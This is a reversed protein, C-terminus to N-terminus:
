DSNQQSKDAEKRLISKEATAYDILNDSVMTGQPRTVKCNRWVISLHKKDPVGFPFVDRYFCKLTLQYEFDNNHHNRMWWQLYTLYMIGQGVNGEVLFLIFYILKDEMKYDFCFNLRQKLAAFCHTQKNIDKIMKETFPECLDMCADLMEIMEQTYSTVPLKSIPICFLTEVADPINTTTFPLYQKNQEPIVTETKM